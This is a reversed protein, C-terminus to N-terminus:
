AEEQFEEVQYISVSLKNKLWYDDAAGMKRCLHNMFAKKDPLQSWVQPLFTARRAGDRILV